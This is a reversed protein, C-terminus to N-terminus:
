YFAHYFCCNIFCYVIFYFWNFNKKKEFRDPFISDLYSFILTNLLYLSMTYGATFVYSIILNTGIKVESGMILNLIEILLFIATTLILARPFERQITKM